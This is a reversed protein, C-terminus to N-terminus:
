HQNKQKSTLSELVNEEIPQSQLVTKQPDVNSEQM